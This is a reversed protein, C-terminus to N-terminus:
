FNLSKNNNGRECLQYHKSIKLYLKILQVGLNEKQM